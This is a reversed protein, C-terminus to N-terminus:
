RDLGRRPDTAEAIEAPDGEHKQVVLYGRGEEVVTETSPLEHGPLVLFWRPDSRVREYAPLPVVLREQCEIRGCECVIHMTEDTLSALSRNLTDVEENIQRFLAENRGIRRKREDTM